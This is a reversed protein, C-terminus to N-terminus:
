SSHSTPGWIQLEELLAWGEGGFSGFSILTLWDGGIGWKSLKIVTFSLGRWWAHWHSPPLISWALLTPILNSKPRRKQPPPPQHHEWAVLSPAWSYADALHNPKPRSLCSCTRSHLHSRRLVWGDCMSLFTPSFLWKEQQPGKAGSLSLSCCGNWHQSSNINSYSSNSSQGWNLQNPSVRSGQLQGKCVPCEYIFESVKWM